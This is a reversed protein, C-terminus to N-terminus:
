YFTNRIHSLNKIKFNEDNKKRKNDEILYDYIINDYIHSDDYYALSQQTHNIKKIYQLIENFMIDDNLDDYVIHNKNVANLVEIIGNEFTYTYLLSNKIILIMDYSIKNDVLFNYDRENKTVNILFKNRYISDSYNYILTIIKNYIDKRDFYLNYINFSSISNLVSYINTKLRIDRKILIDLINNNRKTTTYQFDYLVITLESENDIVDITYNTVDQPIDIFNSRNITGFKVQNELSTTLGNRRSTFIYNIM